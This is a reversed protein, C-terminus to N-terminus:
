FLEVKTNNRKAKDIKGDPKMNLDFESWKTDVYINEFRGRKDIRYIVQFEVNEIKINCLSETDQDTKCEFIQKNQNRSCNRVIASFM